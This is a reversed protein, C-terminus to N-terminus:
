YKFVEYDPSTNFASESKYVFDCAKQIVTFEDNDEFSRSVEMDHFKKSVNVVWADSSRYKELSFKWGGKISIQNLYWDAKKGVRMNEVLKRLKYTKWALICILVLQLSLYFMM